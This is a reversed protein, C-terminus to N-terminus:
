AHKCNQPAKALSHSWVAVHVSHAHGATVVVVVVLEVVVVVVSGCHPGPPTSKKQVQPSPTSVHPMPAPQGVKRSQGPTCCSHERFQAFKPPGPSQGVMGQVSQAVPAKHSYLKAENVEPGPGLRCCKPQM